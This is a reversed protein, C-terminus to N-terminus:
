GDIKIEKILKECDEQKIGLAPFIDQELIPLMGKSLRQWSYYDAIHVVGVLERDIITKDFPTHHFVAAEIISQPMGWWNLLFGGIEQHSVQLITNEVDCITSNRDIRVQDTVQQYQQPFNQLLIVKGIDHLLGATASISPIKKNM